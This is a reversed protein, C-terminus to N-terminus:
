RWAALARPPRYGMVVMSAIFGMVLAFWGAPPLLGVEGSLAACGFLAASSAGTFIVFRGRPLRGRLAVLAWAGVGVGVVVVVLHLFDIVAAVAPTYKRLGSNEV